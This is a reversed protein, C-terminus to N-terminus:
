VARKSNFTLPDYSCGTTVNGNFIGTVGAPSYDGDTPQTTTGSATALVLPEETLRYRPSPDPANLAAPAYRVPLAGTDSAAPLPVASKIVTVATRLIQGNQQEALGSSATACKMGAWAAVRDTASRRGAQRLLCGRSPLARLHSKSPKRRRGPM